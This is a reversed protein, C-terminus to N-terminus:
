EQPPSRFATTAALGRSPSRRPGASKDFRQGKHRTPRVREARSQRWDDSGAKAIAREASACDAYMVRSSPIFMSRLLKASADNIIKLRVAIAAASGVLTAM